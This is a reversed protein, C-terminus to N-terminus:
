NVLLDINTEKVEGVRLPSVVALMTFVLGDV